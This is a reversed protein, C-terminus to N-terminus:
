YVFVELIINVKKSLINIALSSFMRDLLSFLHNRIELESWTPALKMGQWFLKYTHVLLTLIPRQQARITDPLIMGRM